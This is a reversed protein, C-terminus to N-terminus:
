SLLLVWTYYTIFLFYSGLFLILVTQCTFLRFRSDFVSVGLNPKSNGSGEAM